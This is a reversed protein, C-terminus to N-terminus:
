FKIIVQHALQQVPSPMINHLLRLHDIYEQQSSFPVLECEKYSCKYHKMEAKHDSLLESSDFQIGCVDCSMNIFTSPFPSGNQTLFTSREIPPVSLLGVTSMSNTHPSAVLDDMSRLKVNFLKQEKVQEKTEKKEVGNQPQSPESKISVIECENATEEKLRKVKCDENKVVTSTQAAEENKLDIVTNFSVKTDANNELKVSLDQNPSPRETFSEQSDDSSIEINEIDDDGGGGDVEGGGVDSGDVDGDDGDVEGNDGDVEGDDGDVEGADVDSNDVDDEGSSNANQSEEESEKENENVDSNQLDSTKKLESDKKNEGDEEGSIYESTPPVSKVVQFLHYICM